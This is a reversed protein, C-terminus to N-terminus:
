WFEKAQKHTTIDQAWVLCSKQTVVTWNAPRSRGCTCFHWTLEGHRISCCGLHLIGVSFSNISTGFLSINDKSTYINTPRVGSDHMLKWSSYNQWIYCVPLTVMVLMCPYLGNRFRKSESLAMRILLITVHRAFKWGRYEQIAGKVQAAELIEFEASIWSYTKTKSHSRCSDQYWSM